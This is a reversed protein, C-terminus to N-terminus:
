NKVFPGTFKIGGPTDITLIYEAGSPVARLALEKAGDITLFTKPTRRRTQWSNADGRRELVETEDGWCLLERSERDYVEWLTYREVRTVKVHYTKRPRAKTDEFCESCFNKGIAEVLGHNPCNILYDSM